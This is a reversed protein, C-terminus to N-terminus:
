QRLETAVFRELEVVDPSTVLMVGAALVELVVANLIDGPYDDPLPGADPMMLVKFSDAGMQPLIHVELQRDIVKYTCSCELDLLLKEEPTEVLGSHVGAGVNAIYKIASRRTVWRGDFCLVRQDLFNSPRLSIKESADLSSTLESSTKEMKEPAINGANLMLLANVRVGHVPAGGSAFFMISQVRDAVKYFTKRDPAQILLKGVRPAAVKQLDGDVLVRRIVASMRRIEARSTTARVIVDRIYLIDELLHRAMMRTTVELHERKEPSM